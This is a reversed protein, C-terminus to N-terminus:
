EAVAPVMEEMLTIYIDYWNQSARASTYGSWKCSAAVVLDLEPVCIIFQGGWGMAMYFASGHAEGIWWLYGYQNCYPIEDNTINQSTRCREVWAPPVVQIGNWLGDNLMLNGLAFMTHPSIRLGAGGNNYNGDLPLWTWDSGSIDMPEFLYRQAFDIASLGTAQTLIVSLLYTSGTNYNFGDGQPHIESQELVWNVHDGSNYWSWYSNGGDLEHWELGCSMTLLHKITLKEVLIAHRDSIERVLYKAISEDESQIYGEEIAIGVVLAMVSKTVSRVDHLSDAHGDNFYAEAAIEGGKGLVISKFGPVDALRKIASFIRTTNMGQIAAEPYELDSPSPSQDCRCVAMLLIVIPILRHIKSIHNQM